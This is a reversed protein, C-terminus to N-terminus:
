LMEPLRAARSGAGGRGAGWTIESQSGVDRCSGVDDFATVIQKGPAPDPRCPSAPLTLVRGVSSPLTEAFSRQRYM